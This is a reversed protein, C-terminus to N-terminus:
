FLVRRGIDAEDGGYNRSWKYNGLSDLHLLFADSNGSWSSSSGTITYSSDALQVVGEGKDYGTGSYLKYFSIQSFGSFAFVAFLFIILIRM